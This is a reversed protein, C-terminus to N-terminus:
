DLKTFSPMKCLYAQLRQRLEPRKLAYTITAELFGMPSGCDYRHGNLPFARVQEEILLMAIADTLQVEGGAGKETNELLKFIRPTLIYRGIVALNSAANDPKPKEVIKAIVNSQPALTVIGYRDTNELPVTEVALLSSPMAEFDAVMAQLCSSPHSEIIDDALLVAFPRNGVVPQACLVADGLGCSHEQRVYTIQIGDPVINKIISLINYREQQELYHELASNTDFYNEIASKSGSTVLILEKIGASLAEEVVYQILPKDIIPLMEKPIAKTIPLFRTGMGAVPFVAVELKPKM